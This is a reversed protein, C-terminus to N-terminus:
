SVSDRRAGRSRPGRPPAAPSRPQLLRWWTYGIFGGVLLASIFVKPGYQLFYGVILNAFFQSHGGRSRDWVTGLSVGPGAGVANGLWTLAALTVIALIFQSYAQLDSRLAIFLTLGVWLSLPASVKLVHWVEVVDDAGTLKELFGPIGVSVLTLGFILIKYARSVDELAGRM